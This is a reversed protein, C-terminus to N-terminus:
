SDLAEFRTRNPASILFIYGESSLKGFKRQKEVCAGGVEWINTAQYKRMYIGKTVLRTDTWDRSSILPAFRGTDSLASNDVDATADYNSTM